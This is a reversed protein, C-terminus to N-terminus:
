ASSRRERIRGADRRGPYRRDLDIGNVDPLAVLRGDRSFVCAPRRTSDLRRARPRRARTRGNAPDWLSIAGGERVFAVLGSPTFTVGHIPLGAKFGVDIPTGTLGAYLASRLTPSLEDADLLEHARLPLLIRPNPDAIGATSAIAAGILAEQDARDRERRRASRRSGDGFASSSRSASRSPWGSSLSGCGGGSAGTASPREARMARSPSSSRNSPRSSPARIKPGDSRRSWRM